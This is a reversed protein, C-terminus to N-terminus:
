EKWFGRPHDIAGLLRNRLMEKTPYNPLLLLSHCTLSEPIHLETADPLIAVKMQVKQIGVIPVRDLGTLFLLFGQKKDETLEDFVEWFTKINPHTDSYEGDYVTNKFFGRKFEEFVQEVSKNFAYDIYADVFEKRNSWTVPKGKETSDLEVPRGNWDVEAPFWALTQNTNYMFMKSKPEKLERFVDIFFDTKNVLTLILEEKFQVKYLMKLTELLIKVHMNHTNLLGNRLLFSLAQKFVAIHNTLIAPPLSSWCGRLLRSTKDQLKTIISALPIVVNMVERDEKEDVRNLGLQGVKNAGCCYVLGSLALILTHTGGAAVLTVPIGTLSRVPAPSPQVPVQKGLGLQGHSNSGWSFVDGAPKTQDKASRGLQGKHNLGCSLVQGGGTLFVTHQEGCCILSIDENISWPLRSPILRDPRTTWSYMDM